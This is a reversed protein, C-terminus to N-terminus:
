DNMSERRRSRREHREDDDHHERSARNDGGPAELQSQAAQLANIQAYADHLAVRYAQELKRYAAAEDPSAGGDLASAFEGGRTVEPPAVRGRATDIMQARATAAKPRAEDSAVYVWGNRFAVALTAGGLVLLTLLGAIIVVPRNTSTQM